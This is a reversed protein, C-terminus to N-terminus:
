AAHQAEILRPAVGGARMEAAAREGATRFVAAVEARAEPYRALVHLLEARLRMFDASLLVNVTSISTHPVLEGTLKASLSLSEHLRGALNGAVKGDGVDVAALFLGFLPGRVAKLAEVVSTGEELLVRRMDGERALIKTALAARVEPTLHTAAHRHVAALSIKHRASILRKSVGCAIALDHRITPRGCGFALPTASSTSLIRDSRM